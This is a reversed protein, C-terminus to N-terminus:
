KATFSFQARLNSMWTHRHLKTLILSDKPKQKSQTIGSFLYINTFAQSEWHSYSSTSLKRKYETWVTESIGRAFRHWNCMRYLLIEPKIIHQLTNSKLLCAFKFKHLNLMKCLSSGKGKFLNTRKGSSKTQSGECLWMFKGQKSNAAATVLGPEPAKM